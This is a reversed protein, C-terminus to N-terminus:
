SKNKGLAELTQNTWFQTREPEFAKAEKKLLYRLAPKFEKRKIHSMGLYFYAKGLLKPDKEKKSFKELRHVAVEYLKAQYTDRLIADLDSEKEVLPVEANEEKKPFSFETDSNDVISEEEKVPVRSLEAPSILGEKKPQEVTSKEPSAVEEKGENGNLPRDRDFFFRLYSVRDQLTYDEPISSNKATIGFYLSEMEKLEKVYFSTKPHLVTTVKVTNSSNFSAIGDNLPRISAYLTYVTTEDAKEPPLWSIVAGKGVREYGIAQVHMTGVPDPVVSAQSVNAEQRGSMIKTDQILEASNNKKDFVYFVRITSSHDILPLAEDGNWDKVSVGYFITQSKEIGQDLFSTVPHSVEALKVSKQMLPLSTLPETSRYITYITRRNAAGMPPSWNLRVSKREIVAELNTIHDRSGSRPEEKGMQGLSPFSQNNGLVGDMDEITVPTTTYNQNAFLKIERRRIDKALVIAFYYTGPKLNYDYYTKVSNAGGSSFKGLSDAIYLKDPTDIISNSRAIILEGEEKPPDWTLFVSKRDSLLTARLTKTINPNRGEDFVTEGFLHLPVLLGLFLGLFRSNAM